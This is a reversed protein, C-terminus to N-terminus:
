LTSGSCDFNPGLTGGWIYRNNLESQLYEGWVETRLILTLVFILAVPTILIYKKGKEMM